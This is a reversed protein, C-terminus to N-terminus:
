ALRWRGRETSKALVGDHVLRYRLRRLHLKWASESTGRTAYTWREKLRKESVRLRIALAAAVEDLTASGGRSRLFDIIEPAAQKKSPFGMPEHILRARSANDLTVLM